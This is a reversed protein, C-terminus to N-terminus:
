ATCRPREDADEGTVEATAADRDMAERGFLVIKFTELLIEWYYRDTALKAYQVATWHGSKDQLSAITMLAFPAIFFLVLFFVPGGLLLIAEFRGIRM